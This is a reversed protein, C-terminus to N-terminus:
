DGLGLKSLDMLPVTPLMGSSALKKRIAAKKQEPTLTAGPAATMSAPPEVDPTAEPPEGAPYENLEGPQMGFASALPTMAAPKFPADMVGGRSLAKALADVYGARGADKRNLLGTRQANIDRMKAGGAITGVLDGIGGVLATGVTHRSSSDGGRMLAAAQAQQQALLQDREDLTGMGLLQKLEEPSLQALLNQM